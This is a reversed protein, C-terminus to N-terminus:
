RSLTMWSPVPVRSNVQSAAYRNGPPTSGQRVAAILVSMM